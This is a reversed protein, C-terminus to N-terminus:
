SIIQAKRMGLWGSPLGQYQVHFHLHVRQSHCGILSSLPVLSSFAILFVRKDVLTLLPSHGTDQWSPKVTHCPSGDQKSACWTLLYELACLTPPSCTFCHSVQTPLHSNLSENTMSYDRTKCNTMIFHSFLTPKQYSCLAKLYQLNFAATSSCHKRRCCKIKSVTTKCILSVYMIPNANGGGTSQLFHQIKNPFICLIIWLSEIRFAKDTLGGREAEAYNCLVATRM